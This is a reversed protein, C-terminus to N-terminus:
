HTIINKYGLAVTVAHDSGPTNWFNYFKKRDNYSMTELILM